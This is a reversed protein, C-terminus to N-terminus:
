RMKKTFSSSGQRLRMCLCIIIVVLIIIIIVLCELRHLRHLPFTKKRGMGLLVYGHQTKCINLM